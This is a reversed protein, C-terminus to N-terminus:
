DWPSLNVVALVEGRDRRVLVVMPKASAMLPLWGDAAPWEALVRQVDESSNFRELGGLPLSKLALEDRFERLDRYYEPRQPLDPGGLSSELVLDSRKQADDPVKAAVWVPGFWPQGRYAPLAEQQARVDVDVAQVLDFRGVNYVLWVPRGQAVVTFGYVLAAMQLFVIVALDFRLTKKGQRYVVLTLLPGLVVDVAILLLFIREVGAAQQLPAPYWVFFTVLLVLLAACLSLLLHVAFAKLKSM